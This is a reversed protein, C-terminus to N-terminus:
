IGAASIPLFDEYTIPEYEVLGNALLESLKCVEGSLPTSAKNVPRYRFFVLGQSRLEAWTDPYPTFADQLVKQWRDNSGVNAGAISDARELLTDYLEREKRTVAAGRQEVEGFRATHHSVTVEGNDNVFQVREEFAKFSTQRLLIDCARRPPARLEIRLRCEASSCPKRSKPFCAIDAIMPHVAKMQVYSDYPTHTTAHWRFIKLSEELLEAEHEPTALGTTKAQGLLEMLRDSFLNRKSLVKQALTSTEDPLLDLRLLSTFVRFPNRALADSTLPRFATAHLPFGVLSLDYYGVPFMNFLAFLRAMIQMERPTGLRIDGHREIRHRPPLPDSAVQNDVEAVISLLEDYLPVEKKYMESM